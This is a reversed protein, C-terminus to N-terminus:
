PERPDVGNRLRQRSGAVPPDFEDIDQVITATVGGTAFTDLDALAAAGLSSKAALMMDHQNSFTLINARYFSSSSGDLNGVGMSSEMRVLGPVRVVLPLHVAAYHREFEVPDDPQGFLFTIRVPGSPGGVDGGTDVYAPGATAGLRATAALIASAALTTVAQRRNTTISM